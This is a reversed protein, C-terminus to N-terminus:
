PERPPELLRSFTYTETCEKCFHKEEGNVTIAVFTTTQVQCHDCLIVTKIM